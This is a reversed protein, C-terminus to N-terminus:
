RMTAAMAGKRGNNRAHQMRVWSRIGDESIEWPGDQPWTSVVDWKFAQYLGVAEERGVVGLLLALALQAPGSGGFGWSFGTPSHNRVKQSVKPSLPRHNRCVQWTGGRGRAGRYVVTV